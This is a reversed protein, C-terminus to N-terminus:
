EKPENEESPELAALKALREAIEKARDEIEQWQAWELLSRTVRDPMQVKVEVKLPTRAEDTVERV